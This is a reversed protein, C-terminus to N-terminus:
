YAAELPKIILQRALFDRYVIRISRSAPLYLVQSRGDINAQTCEEGFSVCSLNGSKKITVRSWPWHGWTMDVLPSRPTVPLLGRQVIDFPKTQISLLRLVCRGM